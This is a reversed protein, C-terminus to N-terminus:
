YQLVVKVADAGCTYSAGNSSPVLEVQNTYYKGEPSVIGTAKTGISSWGAPATNQNIYGVLNVISSTGDTFYYAARPDTFSAHYLFANVTVYFPTYRSHWGYNWSYVSSSNCRQTRADQYYLTSANIKTDFGYRSNSYGQADDNDIIHTSHVTYANVSTICGIALVLSVLITFGSKLFKIKKM